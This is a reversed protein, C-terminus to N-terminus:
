DRNFYPAISEPSCYTKEWSYRVSYGETGCIDVRIFITSLLSFTLLVVIFIVSHGILENFEKDDLPIM